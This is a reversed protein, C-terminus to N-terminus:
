KELDEIQSKLDKLLVKVDQLLQEDASLTKEQSALEDWAALAKKLELGTELIKNKFELKTDNKDSM